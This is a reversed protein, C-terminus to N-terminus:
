EGGFKEELHKRYDEISLDPSLIGTLQRVIPARELVESEAHFQQLYTNILETQTTNHLQAYRKANEVLRKPVRITLKTQM